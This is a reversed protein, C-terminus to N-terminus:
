NEHDQSTLQPGRCHVSNYWYNRHTVNVVSVSVYIPVVCLCARVCVCPFPDECMCHLMELLEAFLAGNM